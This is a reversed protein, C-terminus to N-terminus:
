DEYIPRGAGDTVTYDKIKIGKKHLEAFSGKYNPPKRISVDGYGPTPTTSIAIEKNDLTQPESLQQVEQLDEIPSIM